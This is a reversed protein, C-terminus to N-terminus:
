GLPNKTNLNAFALCRSAVQWNNIEARIQANEISENLLNYMVALKGTKEVAFGFLTSYFFVTDPNTALKHSFIPVFGLQIPPTYPKCLVDLLCYKYLVYGNKNAFAYREHLKQARKTYSPNALIRQLQAGIYDNAVDLPTKPKAMAILQQYYANGYCIFARRKDITPEADVGRFLTTIGGCILNRYVIGITNLKSNHQSSTVKTGDFQETLNLAELGVLLKMHDTDSTNDKLHYTLVLELEYAQIALTNEIKSEAYIVEGHTTATVTLARVENLPYADYLCGAIERTLENEIQEVVTEKTYTTLSDLKITGM